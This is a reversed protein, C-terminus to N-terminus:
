SRCKTEQCGAFRVSVPPITDPPDISQRPFDPAHAKSATCSIKQHKLSFKQNVFHFPQQIIIRANTLLHQNHPIAANWTEPHPETQSSRRTQSWSTAPEFGTVGIACSFLNMNIMRTYNLPLVGAKWAPYTPEIGMVRKKTERIIFFCLQVYGNM